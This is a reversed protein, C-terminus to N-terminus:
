DAAEGWAPPAGAKLILDAARFIKQASQEPVPEGTRNRNRIYGRCFEAGDLGLTECCILTVAEAEVERLGRPTREPDAFDAEAMHGLVVHGLEHFITKHPVRALPSIAVTRGKAYGQTNGDTLDFPTESVDL